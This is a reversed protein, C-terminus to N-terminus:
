TSPCVHNHAATAIAFFNSVEIPPTNVVERQRVAQKSEGAAYGQCLRRAMDDLRQDMLKTGTARAEQHYANMVEPDQFREEWSEGACAALGLVPLALGVAIARSVLSARDM